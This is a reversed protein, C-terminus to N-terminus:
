PQSSAQLSANQMGLEGRQRAVHRALMVGIAAGGALAAGLDGLALVKLMTTSEAARRAGVRM